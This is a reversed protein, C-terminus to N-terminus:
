CIDFLAYFGSLFGAAMAKDKDALRSSRRQTEIDAAFDAM